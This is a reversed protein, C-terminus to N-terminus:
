FHFVVGSNVTFLTSTAVKSSELTEFPYARGGGVEVLRLDLFHVFHYDIGGLVEYAAFQNNFTQPPTGPPAPQYTSNNTTRSAIYGGSGQVYFKLHGVPPKFSLKLGALASDAGPTGPKTSGRLDLGLALPGFPILRVTIGGGVGPANLSTTNNTYTGGTSYSVGTPVSSAHLDSFTAYASFIQAHARGVPCLTLLASCAILSIKRM